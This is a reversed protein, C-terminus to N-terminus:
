ENRLRVTEVFPFSLTEKAYTMEAQLEITLQAGTKFFKLRGINVAVVQINGAPYERVLKNGDLYYQISSASDTSFTLRDSIDVGMSVASARSERIERVMRDMAQRAQQHLQLYSSDVQYVKSGTGLIGTLALMMLSFISVSVMAEVLTFGYRSKLFFKHSLSSTM